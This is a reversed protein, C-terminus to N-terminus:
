LKLYLRALQRQDIVRFEIERQLESRVKTEFAELSHYFKETLDGIIVLYATRVHEPSNKIARELDEFPKTTSVLGEYNKCQIPIDDLLVEGTLVDRITITLDWGYGSDGEAKLEIGPLNRLVDAVFQEFYKSQWKQQILTVTRDIVADQLKMMEISQSTEDKIDNRTWLKSELIEDLEKLAGEPYIQYYKGRKSLAHRLENTVYKSFYTIAGPALPRGKLIHNFDSQELTPYDYGEVVEFLYFERLPQTLQVAIRDTSAIRNLLFQGTRYIESGTASWEDNGLILKDCEGWSMDDLRRLDSGPPSWGFHLRGELLEQKMWEERDENFCCLKFWRSM